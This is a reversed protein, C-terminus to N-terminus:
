CGALCLDQFAGLYVRRTPTLVDYPTIRFLLYELFRSLVALFVTDPLHCRFQDLEDFCVDEVGLIVKTRLVEGLDQPCEKAQFTSRAFPPLSSTPGKRVM